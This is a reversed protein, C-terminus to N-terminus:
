TTRSRRWPVIPTLPYQPGPRIAPNLLYGQQTPATSANYSGPPPMLGGRGFFPEQVTVGPPMQGSPDTYNVPNNFAYAYNHLTRPQAPTGLVPDAQLFRGTEPDYTRARLYVHGSDDQEEGAFGFPTAGLGTETELGGFPDYRRALQVQGQLLVWSVAPEVQREGVTILLRHIQYLSDDANSEDKYCPSLM